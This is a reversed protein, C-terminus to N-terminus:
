RRSEARDARARADSIADGRACRCAFACACTCVGRRPERATAGRARRLATALGRDAREDRLLCCVEVGSSLQCATHTLARHAASGRPWTHAHAESYQPLTVVPSSCLCDLRRSHFARSDAHALRSRERESERERERERERESHTHTHTHAHTRAHTRAHTQTQRQAHRKRSGVQKERVRQARVGCM